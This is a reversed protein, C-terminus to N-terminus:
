IDDLGESKAKHIIEKDVGTSDSGLDLDPNSYKSCDLQISYKAPKIFMSKKIGTTTDGYVDDMFYGFIPLALKAGQGFTWDRFHIPRDDGGVWVATVLNQTVGVFWGDSFNQTTGTKGGIENGGWLNKYRHLGLATGGKEETAGKLMYLMTYATEEHLAEERKPIFEEIVNGNKDEIRTIFIPETYIGKNALAGYAGVLEYISVEAVGYCLSPVAEINGKFGMRRAYDVVTQPTIRKMLYATITNMSKALAQRLTLYEGTSPGDSNQPTYSTGLAEDFFTVPADQVKYCPHFGNDIAATYVIPKFTSGPQRRSQKVHDYKFFKHNIGGVWAKIYGTEPDMAILGSLLIKKYYRLSDMSSFTTDKEGNWTFIKMRKKRNLQYNISDPNSHYKNKL